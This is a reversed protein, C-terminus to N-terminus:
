SMALTKKLMIIFSFFLSSSCIQENFSLPLFHLRKSTFIKKSKERRNCFHQCPAMCIHQLFIILCCQSIQTLARWYIVSYFMQYSLNSLFFHRSNMILAQNLMGYQNQNKWHKTTKYITCYPCLESRPLSSVLSLPLAVLLQGDIFTEM